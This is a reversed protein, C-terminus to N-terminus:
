KAYGPNLKMVLGWNNLPRNGRDVLFSEERIWRKFLGRRFNM